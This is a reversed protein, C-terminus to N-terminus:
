CRTFASVCCKSHLGLISNVKTIRLTATQSKTATFLRRGCTMISEPGGVMSQILLPKLRVVGHGIYQKTIGPLGVRVAKGNEDEVSMKDVKLLGELADVYAKTKGHKPLEFFVEFATALMVIRSEASFGEANLHAYRVWDLARFYKDDNPDGSDILKALGSLLKKDHRYFLNYNPVFAPRVFRASNLSYTNLVRYFSGTQYTIFDNEAANDTPLTFPQFLLTFQESVCVRNEANNVVNCFLLAVAYRSLDLLQKDSLTEFGYNDDIVAITFTTGQNNNADVYLSAYQEIRNRIGEDTIYDEGLSLNFLHVRSIKEDFNEKPFYPLFAFLSM